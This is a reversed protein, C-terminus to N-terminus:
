FFHFITEIFWRNGWFLSYIVLNSSSCKHGVVTTNFISHLITIILFSVVGDASIPNTTTTTDAIVSGKNLTEYSCQALDSMGSAGDSGNFGRPGQLKSITELEQYISINYESFQTMFSQQVVSIESNLRTIQWFLCDIDVIWMQYWKVFGQNMIIFYNFFRRLVFMSLCFPILMPLSICTNRCKLCVLPFVLPSHICKSHNHM